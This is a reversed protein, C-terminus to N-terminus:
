TKKVLTLIKNEETKKPIVWRGNKSVYGLKVKEPYLFMIDADLLWARMAEAAGLPDRFREHLGKAGIIFAGDIWGEEDITYRVLVGRDKMRRKLNELERRDTM